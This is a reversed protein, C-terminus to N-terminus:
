SIWIRACPSGRAIKATVIMRPKVQRLSMGVLSLMSVDAGSMYAQFWLAGYYVFTAVFAMAFLVLLFIGGIWLVYQFAFPATLAVSEVM